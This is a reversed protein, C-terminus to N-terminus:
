FHATIDNKQSIQIKFTTSYPMNQGLDCPFRQKSTTLFFMVSINDLPGRGDRGADLVIM